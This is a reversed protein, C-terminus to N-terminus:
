IKVKPRCSKCICIDLIHYSMVPGYKAFADLRGSVDPHNPKVPFIFNM